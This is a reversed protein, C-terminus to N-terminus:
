RTHALHLLSGLQSRIAAFARKRKYGKTAFWGALGHVEATSQMIVETTGHGHDLIWLRSQTHVHPATGSITLLHPRVEEHIVFTRGGARSHFRVVHRGAADDPLQKAWEIDAFREPWHAYDTLWHQVVQWPAPVIARGEQWAGDTGPVDRLAFDSPNALANAAFTVLLAAACANV